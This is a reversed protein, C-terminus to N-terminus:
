SSVQNLDQIRVPVGVLADIAAKYGAAFTRAEKLTDLQASGTVHKWLAEDAASVWACGEEPGDTVTIVIQTREVDLDKYTRAPM